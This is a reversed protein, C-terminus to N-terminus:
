KKLGKIWSLTADGVSLHDGVIDKQQQEINKEVLAYFKKQLAQEEIEVMFPAKGSVNLQHESLLREIHFRVARNRVWARTYGFYRNSGYSLVFLTVGATCMAMFFSPSSFVVSVLLFVILLGMFFTLNCENRPKNQTSEYLWFVILYLATPITIVILTSVNSTIVLNNELLRILLCEDSLFSDSYLKNLTLASFSIFFGVLAVLSMRRTAVHKKYNKSEVGEIKGKYKNIQEILLSSDSSM